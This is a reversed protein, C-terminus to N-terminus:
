RPTIFGLTVGLNASDEFRKKEVPDKNLQELLKKKAKDNMLDTGFARPDIENVRRAYWKSFQHDPLGKNEFELYAAQQMRRLSLASKAVDVAAANSIHVSPNGAFAAALKDNTGSSGTQNVFDTLFKKAKDFDKVSGFGFDSEKVGPVNSLVFSKIHNLTDTGPGTGKTGLKELAPIAQALPFIERQFSSARDREKALQAGSAEGTTRMAEGVGPALGTAPGSPAPYRNQVQQNPTPGNGPGAVPLAPANQVTAGTVTGGFNASPGNIANPNPAPRAVPLLSRGAGPVNFGPAAPPIGVSGSTSQPPTPGQMVKQQYTPSDPNTDLVETTPPAQNQIPLGTSRIGFKPSSVIPQTGQGTQITGPAGYHFNVAEINSQGRLLQQKLFEQMPQGSQTPMTKLFQASMDPPVLKLNVLNQLGSEVDNPGVDPKALLTSLEKNVMGWQQNILALKSTDIGIKQQELQQLKSATDLFNSQQPKPYSSTDATLEVM